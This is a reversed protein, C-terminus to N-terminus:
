RVVADTVVKSAFDPGFTPPQPRQEATGLRVVVTKSGPDVQLIQDGFGLAWYM